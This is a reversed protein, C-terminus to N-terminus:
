VSNFNSIEATTNNKRSLFVKLIKEGRSAHFMGCRDLRRHSACTVQLKLLAFRQYIGLKDSFQPLVVIDLSPKQQSCIRGIKIQM